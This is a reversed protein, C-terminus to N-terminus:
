SFIIVALPPDKVIRVLSLDCGRSFWAGAQAQVGNPAPM